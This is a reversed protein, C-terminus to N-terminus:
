QSPTRPLRNTRGVSITTVSLELVLRPGGGAALQPPRRERPLGVAVLDHLDLEGDRRIDCDGKRTRPL